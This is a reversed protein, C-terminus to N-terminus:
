ADPFEIEVRAGDGAAKLFRIEGGHARIVDHAISLSLGLGARAASRSFRPETLSALADATFGRGDDEVAIRHRGDNEESLIVRVSSKAHRIANAIVEMVTVSLWRQDVNARIEAPLDLTLTVAKRKQIVKADDNARTVLASLDIPLREVHLPGADLQAVMELREAIRLIGALGRRAMAFLSADAAAGERSELEDLVGSTIGAPGRLDHSVRSFLQMLALHEASSNSETM